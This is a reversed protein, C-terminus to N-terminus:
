RGGSAERCAETTVRVYRARPAHRSLAESLDHRGGLLLVVLPEKAQALRKAMADERAHNARHDPVLNGGLWRPEAAKLADADELARVEVL